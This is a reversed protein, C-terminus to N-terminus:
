FLFSIISDLRIMFVFPLILGLLFILGLQFATNRKRTKLKFIRYSWAAFIISHFLFPLIMVLGFGDPMEGGYKNMGIIIGVFVILVMLLLLLFLITFMLAVVRYYNTNTSRDGITGTTEKM